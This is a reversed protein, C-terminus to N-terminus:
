LTETGHVITDEDIYPLMDKAMAAETKGYFIFIEMPPLGLDALHVLIPKGEKLKQTNIRSIGLGVFPVGDKTGAFKVM